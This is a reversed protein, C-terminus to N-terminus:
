SPKSVRDRRAPARFRLAESIHSVDVTEHASLDAITRAVRLVRHVGRASLSLRTRATRLVEVGAASPAVVSLTRAGDLHGNLRVPRPDLSSTSYREWQLDRAKQIPKLLPAEGGASPPEFLADTSPQGLEVYLDFRDLLPGSTRARYRAIQVEDCMCRDQPDGYFGCPCPNAAAILQVRAPYSVSYRARTIRVCEEELPQRLAELVNRRFEALEDLFLVGGHALSLEGPRAPTGGGILGADSITHHPARFPPRRLLGASGSLLGAVSHVKTVEVAAADDLDPLLHPLRRALMTKGVGPPGVLFLAHGGAAAIEVARKAQLQGRVDRLGLPRARPGAPPTPHARPLAQGALVALLEALSEVGLVDIGPIAAAESSNSYPLVLRSLGNARAAEAVSLAGRMDQLVGDLGLEGSFAVGDVAGEPLMGCGVLLGVAIPLDLASGEKRRDAPALNVIIRRPPVPRDVSRLAAMVRDRGERVSGHPLGVVAFSPLGSGVDVEVRVPYAEVGDLAASWVKALM